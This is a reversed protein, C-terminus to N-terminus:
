KTLNINFSQLVCVCIFSCVSELFRFVFICEDFRHHKVWTRLSSNFGDKYHARVSLFFNYYAFGLVLVSYKHRRAVVFHVNLHSTM